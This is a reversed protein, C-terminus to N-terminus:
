DEAVLPTGLVMNNSLTVARRCVRAIALTICSTNPGLRRGNQMISISGVLGFAM